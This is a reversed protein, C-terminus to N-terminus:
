ESEQLTYGGEFAEAPSWSEYGDPYLVYYGGVKPEHRVMYDTGVLVETEGAVLAVHEPNGDTEGIEYIRLIRFAEVVKYSQYKEM